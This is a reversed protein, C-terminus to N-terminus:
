PAAAPPEPAVFRAIRDAIDAIAAPRHGLVRRQVVGAKDVLYTCPTSPIGYSMAHYGERDRLWSCTWGASAILEAAENDDGGVVIPWVTIKGTPTHEVDIKELAQLVPLSDPADASVFSLVLMGKGRAPGTHCTRGNQDTLQIDRIMEHASITNDGWRQQSQGGYAAM